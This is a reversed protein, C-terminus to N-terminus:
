KSPESPPPDDLHSSLLINGDDIGYWSGRFPEEGVDVEKLAIVATALDIGGGGGYASQTIGSDMTHQTGSRDLGSKQLEQKRREYMREHMKQYQLTKVYQGHQIDALTTPLQDGKVFSSTTPSAPNSVLTGHSERRGQHSYPHGFKFAAETPTTIHTTMPGGTATPSALTSRSNPFTPSATSDSLDSISPKYPLILFPERDREKPRLSSRSATGDSSTDNSGQRQRRNPPYSNKNNSDQFHVQRYQFPSDQLQYGITGSNADSYNEDGEMLPITSSSHSMTSTTYGHKSRNGAGGDKGLSAGSDVSLRQRKLTRREWLLRGILAFIVILVLSGGVVIGIVAGSKMGQSGDGNANGLSASDPMYNFGWEWSATNIVAVQPESYQRPGTLAGDYGGVLIIQDQAVLQCTAGARGPIPLNRISKSVWTWTKTSLVWADNLSGTASTGGYMFVDGNPLVVTCPSLRPAPIPGSSMSIEKVPVMVGNSVTVMSNVLYGSSLSVCATVSGSADVTNCGGMILTQQITPIYLTIPQSVGGSSSSVPNEVAASWTWRQFMPRTDLLDFENVLTVTRIGSTNNNSSSGTAASEQIGGYLVMQGTSTDMAMGVGRRATKPFENAIATSPLYSWTDTAIDYVVVLQGLQDQVGALVLHNQDVSVAVKAEVAAYGSKLKRWPIAGVSFARDLPIALTENTAQFPAIM